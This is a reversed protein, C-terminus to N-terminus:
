VGTFTGRDVGGTTPHTSWVNRGITQLTVHESEDAMDALIQRRHETGYNFLSVLNEARVREYISKMSM